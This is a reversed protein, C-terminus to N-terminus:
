SRNGREDNQGVEMERCLGNRTMRMKSSKPPGATDHSGVLSYRAWRAGISFARVNLAINGISPQGSMQNDFEDFFLQRLEIGGRIPFVVRYGKTKLTAVAEVAVLRRKAPDFRGVNFLM